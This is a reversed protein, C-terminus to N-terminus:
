NFVGASLYREGSDPFIVVILKDKNEPRLALEKAAWCAAGSSIGALIGEEKGLRRTMDLAMDDAVSIVEDIVDPNYVKPVFNPGIGQIEHPGPKGGSLVPSSAPEVAVAKLNPKKAKLAEAIGTITAGSGAGAVVIDVRGETDHWIEEATTLRHIAPNAPNEFQMPLFYRPDAEVRAKAVAIAGSMGEAGPTLLVEAGLAKLILQRERSMADPMVVMCRLGRAACAFALGIGTNGSTPEIVISDPGLRGSRAAEDLMSVAARDKVSGLPNFFELKAVVQAEGPSIVRRLRVLPTKGVLQTVDKAIKM